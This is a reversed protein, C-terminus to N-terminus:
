QRMRWRLAITCMQWSAGTSTFCIIQANLNQREFYTSVLQMMCNWNNTRGFQLRAIEADFLLYRSLFDRFRSRDVAPYAQLQICLIMSVRLFPLERRILILIWNYILKKKKTLIEFKVNQIFNFCIKSHMCLARDFVSWKIYKRVRYRLLRWIQSMYSALM